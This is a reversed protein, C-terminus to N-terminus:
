FPIDEGPPPPIEGPPPTPAPTTGPQPQQDFISVVIMDKDPATNVGAPNFTKKLLLYLGDQGQMVKGINEYRNKTSGDTATYSGTKVVLDKPYDSM